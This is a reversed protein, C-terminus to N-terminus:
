GSPLPGFEDSRISKNLLESTNTSHLVRIPISPDSSIQRLNNNPIGTLLDLQNQTGIVQSSLIATSPDFTNSITFTVSGKIHDGSVSSPRLDLKLTDLISLYFM